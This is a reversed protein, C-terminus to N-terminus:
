PSTRRRTRRMTATSSPPTTGTGPTRGDVPIAGPACPSDHLDGTFTREDVTTGDSLKLRPRMALIRKRERDVAALARYAADSRVGARQGEPGSLAKGVKRENESVFIKRILKRFTEFASM